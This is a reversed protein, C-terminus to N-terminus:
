STVLVIHLSVYGPGASMSFILWTFPADGRVTETQVFKPSSVMFSILISFSSLNQVVLNSLIWAFFLLNGNLALWESVDVYKPLVVITKISGKVLQSNM